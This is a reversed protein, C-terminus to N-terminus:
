SAGGEETLARALRDELYLARARVQVQDDVSADRKDRLARVLSKYGDLQHHAFGLADEARRLRGQLVRIQARLASKKMSKKGEDSHNM